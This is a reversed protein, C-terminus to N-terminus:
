FLTPVRAVPTFRILLSFLTLKSQCPLNLISFCCSVKFPSCSLCIWLRSVDQIRQSSHYKPQQDSQESATQRTQMNPELNDQNKLDSDQAKQALICSNLNSGLLNNQSFYRFILSEMIPVPLAIRHLSYLFMERPLGTQWCSPPSKQFTNVYM